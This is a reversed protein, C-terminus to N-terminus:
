LRKYIRKATVGSPASYHVVLGSDSFEYVRNGTTSGSVSKIEVKNGSLVATSQAKQGPLPEDEFTKGFTFTQGRGTTSSISCNDGDVKIEITPRSSDMKSALEDTIEPGLSKLYQAFNENGTNEFKGAILVM